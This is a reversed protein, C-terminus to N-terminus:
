GDEGAWLLVGFGSGVLSAGVLTWGPIARGLYFSDILAVLGITLLNAVSATTPGLLGILIQPLISNDNVLHTM